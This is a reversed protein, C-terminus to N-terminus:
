SGSLFPVDELLLKLRVLGVLDPDAINSTKLQPLEIKVGTHNPNTKGCFQRM